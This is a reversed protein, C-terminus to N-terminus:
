SRPPRALFLDDLRGAGPGVDSWDGDFSITAAAATPFKTALQARDGTDGGGVLLDALEHVGPNHGIVMACRVAADLSQVQAVLWHEGAHYLREDIVIDADVPLIARLGDLTAL